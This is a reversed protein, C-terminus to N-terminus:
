SERAEGDTMEGTETVIEVLKHLRTLELMQQVAPTPHLLRVRGQRRSVANHLFFLAGLGMSDIYIIGSLDIEIHRQDQGFAESCRDRLHKAQAAGLEKLETVRITEREIQINM